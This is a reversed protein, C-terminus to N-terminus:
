LRYLASMIIFCVNYPELSDYIISRLIHGVGYSAEFQSKFLMFCYQNLVTGVWNAHQDRISNKINKEAALAKLDAHVMSLFVSLQLKSLSTFTSPAINTDVFGNEELMQCVEIWKTQYLNQLSFNFEKFYNPLSHRLRYAYIKRLRQRAEMPFPQRNFPNTSKHKEHLCAFITRVDFGYIQGNQEFAFYDFPSVTRIDEFTSIEEQNNCVKRNLVGPGALELRRRIIYGKWIKTITTVHKDLNNVVSWIRPNKNKAHVGCLKMGMLAKNKCRDLSTKNKCSACTSM